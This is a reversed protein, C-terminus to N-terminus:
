DHLTSCAGEIIYAHIHQSHSKCPSLEAQNLSCMYSQIPGSGKFEIMVQGSNIKIVGSNIFNVICLSEPGILVLTHIRAFKYKFM